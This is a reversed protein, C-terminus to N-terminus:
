ISIQMSNLAKPLDFFSSLLCNANLDQYPVHCYGYTVCVGPIGANKAALMDTESDGVFVSSSIKGKVAKITEFVHQAHPKCQKVDDQSIVVGFYHDLELSELVPKTTVGPKNTCVGMKVGAAYLETLVECVGDYVHTYQASNQMYAELYLNMLKRIKKPVIPRGINRHIEVVMWEAGFGVLKKVQERDLNPINEEALVQNLAIHIAPLSDILTGDLDFVITDPYNM